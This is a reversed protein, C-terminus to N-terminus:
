IKKEKVYYDYCEATLRYPTKGESVLHRYTTEVCAAFCADFDADFLMRLREVGEFSRGEEVMDAVFVLKELNSMGARGTTHYRVANLVDGDTVGFAHELMYAGLFAHAVPEPADAPVASPFKSKDAYKAIDHYVCADFVTDRDLNLGKAKDLACAAVNATHRFRKEHLVSKVLEVAPTPPYLGKEAIYRAVAAPVFPSVDLGFMAYLRIKTSSVQKGRYSLRIVDAGYREALYRREKDFDVYAGEREFAALRAAALIREPCRWTKFNELMDGGVIFFLEGDPYIGKLYELTKYTYSTGGARIEYDCVNEAGFVEKLMEERAAAPACESHSKHPPTFTPVVVLASLNLEEKVREAMTIHENHVPDFTGGLIGIKNM